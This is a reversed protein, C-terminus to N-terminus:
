VMWRMAGLLQLDEKFGGGISSRFNKLQTGSWGRKGEWGRRKWHFNIESRIRKLLYHFKNLELVFRYKLKILDTGILEWALELANSCHGWTCTSPASVRPILTDSHKYIMRRGTWFLCLDGPVKKTADEEKAVRCFHTSPYSSTAFVVVVVTSIACLPSISLTTPSM